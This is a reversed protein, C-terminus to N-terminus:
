TSYARSATFCPDAATPNREFVWETKNAKFTHITVQVTATCIMEIIFGNSLSGCALKGGVLLFHESYIIMNSNSDSPQCGISTYQPLHETMKCKLTKVKKLLLKMRWCAMDDLIIKLRGMGTFRRTEEM